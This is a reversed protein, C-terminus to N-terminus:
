ANTEICSLLVGTCFIAAAVAARWDTLM